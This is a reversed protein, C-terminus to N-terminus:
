CMIRVRVKAQARGFEAEAREDGARDVFHLQFLCEAEVRDALACQGHAAEAPAALHHLGHFEVRRTFDPLARRLPPDLETRDSKQLLAGHARYSKTSRFSAGM